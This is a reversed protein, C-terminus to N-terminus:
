LNKLTNKKKTILNIPTIVTLLIIYTELTYNQLADDTYQMTQEGVFTFDGETVM